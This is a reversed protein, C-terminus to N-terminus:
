DIREIDVGPSMARMAGMLREAEEGTLPAPQWRSIPANKNGMLNDTPYLDECTSVTCPVIGVQRTELFGAENWALQVQLVATDTALLGNATRTSGNLFKNKHKIGVIFNSLDYAILKGKYMELGSLVHRHHGLVLDAGADIAAHALSRNKKPVSPAPYTAWEKTDCWHFNVIVIDCTKRLHKVRSKVSGSTAPTQYGCVGVKLNKLKTKITYTGTTSQRCNGIGYQKLNSVTSSAGSALFDYTHNNAFSCFEIGADALIKAYGGRGRFIFTKSAGKRPSTLTGELNIVSFDDNQFYSAVNKFPYDYGNESILNDFDALSSYKPTAYSPYAYLLNGEADKQQWVSATEPKHLASQQIAKSNNRPDGGLIVDGAASITVVVERGRVCVQATGKKGGCSVTVTTIGPTLGHIVGNEDIEVIASASSYTKPQYSANAPKVTVSAPYEEGEDITIVSKGFAVSSVPVDSVTIKSVATKGGAASTAQVTASGKRLAKVAGSESVSVIEEGGPLVEWSVTRDDGTNAPSFVARLARTDGVQMKASAPSVSVNQIPLNKVTVRCTAKKDGRVMSVTIIASGERNLTLLGNQDVSVIDPSSSSWTKNQYTANAPKVTAKMQYTGLRPDLTLLKSGLSVSTVKIVGAAQAGAGLLLIAIAVALILLSKRHPKSM